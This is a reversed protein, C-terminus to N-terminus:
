VNGVMEWWGSMGDVWVERVWVLEQSGAGVDAAYGGVPEVVEGPAGVFFFYVGEWVVGDCYVDVLVTGYVHM